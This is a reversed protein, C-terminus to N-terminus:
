WEVIFTVHKVYMLHSLSINCNPLSIGRFYHLECTKEMSIHLGEMVIVFFFPALLDCQTVGRKINFEKTPAGNILLSDRSLFLCGRIWRRCKCGLERPEMLLDLFRSLSDFSKDFNVKFILTKKKLRKTNTWSYVENFLLSEDLINRGEMNTTHEVSITKDLVMKFENAVM